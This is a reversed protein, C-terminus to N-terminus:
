RFSIVRELPSLVALAAGFATMKKRELNRQAVNNHMRTLAHRVGSYIVGIAFM